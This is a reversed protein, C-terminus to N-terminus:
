TVAKASVLVMALDQKGPLAAGVSPIVNVLKVGNPGLQANATTM